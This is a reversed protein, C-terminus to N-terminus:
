LIAEIQVDPTEKLNIFEGDLTKVMPRSLADKNLMVIDGQKGNSLLVRNHMYTDCIHELFVLILKSDYKQFGETEFISVVKFPCLPGRYVRAATMADYVDAIAVIQSFQDLKDAKYGLPYGSGDMREHHLLAANKIRDDIAQNRLINYGQLTHTKIINFEADTLKSPKKLIKDPILLKGVDHLLGAMTLTTIDEDSLNLWRGFINCILSVSMCHTYTMDDLDRMNHLMDFVGITTAGDSIMDLVSHLLNESNIPQNNEVLSHLNGKLVETNNVFSKKFEKFQTTAKIRESYATNEPASSFTVTDSDDGGFSINLDSSVSVPPRYDPDEVHIALVSYFELRTIVKDTLETGKPLILQNNYSYVDEAAIMGPLLNSTRVRQM